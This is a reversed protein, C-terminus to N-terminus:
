LGGVCGIIHFYICVQIYLTHGTHVHVHLTCTILLQLTIGRKRERGTALNRQSHPYMKRPTLHCCSFIMGSIGLFGASSSLMKRQMIICFIILNKVEDLKLAHKPLRKTNGHVRLALRGTALYSAKFVM